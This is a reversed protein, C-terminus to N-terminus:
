RDVCWRGCCYWAFHVLLCQVRVACRMKMGPGLWGKVRLNYAVQPKSKSSWLLWLSFHQNPIPPQGSLQLFFFLSAPNISKVVIVPKNSILKLHTNPWIEDLRGKLNPSQKYFQKSRMHSPQGKGLTTAGLKQPFLFGALFVSM